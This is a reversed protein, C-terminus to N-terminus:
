GTGCVRNKQPYLKEANLLKKVSDMSMADGVAGASGVPMLALCMVIALLFAIARNSKKKM